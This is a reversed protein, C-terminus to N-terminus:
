ASFFANKLIRNKQKKLANDFTTKQAIVVNFNAYALRRTDKCESRRFVGFFLTSTNLGRRLLKLGRRLAKM